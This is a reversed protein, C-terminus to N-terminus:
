RRDRVAARKELDSDWRGVEDEGKAEDELTARGKRGRGERGRACVGERAKEDEWLVKCVGGGFMLSVVTGMLDTL